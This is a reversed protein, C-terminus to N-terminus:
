FITRIARRRGALGLAAALMRLRIRLNALDVATYTVSKAGDGMAYSVSVAQGGISLTNIATQTATFLSQLEAQTLGIIEPPTCYDVM